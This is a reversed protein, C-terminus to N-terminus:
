TNIEDVITTLTINVGQFMESLRGQNSNFRTILSEAESVLVQRAPISAPDDAVEQVGDFFSQLAPALGTSANALLNNVQSTLQLFASAQSSSTGSVRLQNELFADIVRAVTSAEVGSGVFAGSRLQSPRTVLETRQRSYGDTNVNAINHSITNLIRQNTLLGSVGINFLGTGM